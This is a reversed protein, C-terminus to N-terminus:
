ANTQCIEKITNYIAYIQTVQLYPALAVSLCQRCAKDLMEPDLIPTGDRFIEVERKLRELLATANSQSANNAFDILDVHFAYQRLDALEGQQDKLVLTKLAEVAKPDM